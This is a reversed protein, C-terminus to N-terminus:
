PVKAFALAMRPRDYDLLWSDFDKSLSVIEQPELATIDMGRDDYAYVSVGREIDVLKALVPAVPRVGIDQGINSWLLIDAQDWTLNVARHKWPPLDHGVQDAPYLQGSWKSLAPKTPFCSEPLQGMRELQKFASGKTWGRWKGSRGSMPRPNAAIIATVRDGPLAARALTRARDYSMTFMNVYSTPPAEPDVGGDNLEFRLRFPSAWLDKQWNPGYSIKMSTPYDRLPDDAIAKSNLRAWQRINESVAIRTSRLGGSARGSPLCGAGRM